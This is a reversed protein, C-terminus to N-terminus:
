IEFNFRDRVAKDYARKDFRYLPAPRHQGRETDKTKVVIGPVVLVKKVKTYFNSTNIRRGLLTEYLRQLQRLTFREPLLNFGIPAYRVKAQIRNLAMQIIQKHDFALEDKWGPHTLVENVSFWAAEVADDGAQPNYDKLRVLAMYAVSIVRGRPDRGPTGFTYLQELYAVKIGTEEALERRAADDISEGQDEPNADGDVMEKAQAEGKSSVNVFGGPIAWHGKFPEDRRKILLIKLDDEDLDFGFIVPDVTVSPRRFRYKFPM